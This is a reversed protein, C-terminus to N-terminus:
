TGKPRPGLETLDAPTIVRQEHDWRNHTGPGTKNPIERRGWGFIIFQRTFSIWDLIAERVEPKRRYERLHDTMMARSTCQVALTRDGQFALIDIFGFLDQRNGGPLTFPGQALADLKEAAALSISDTNTARLADVIRLADQDPRRDIRPIWRETVGATFGEKRLWELTRQTAKIDGGPIWRGAPKATTNM